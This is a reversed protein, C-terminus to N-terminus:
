RRNPVIYTHLYMCTHRYIHIDTHRYTVYAQIGTHRYAQIDTHRYTQIDTHRYTQIDTHIYTHIHTQIDTHRSHRYTQIDLTQRDTHRYTQIDTHRYTQIDTHIYTQIYTHTYIFIYKNILHVDLHRLDEGMWTQDGELDGLIHPPLLFVAPRGACQLQVRQRPPDDDTPRQFTGSIQTPFDHFSVPFIGAQWTQNDSPFPIYIYIYYATINMLGYRLSYLGEAILCQWSPLGHYIITFTSKLLFYDIIRIIIWFFCLCFCGAPGSVTSMPTCMTDLFPSKVVTGHQNSSEFVEFFILRTKQSKVAM